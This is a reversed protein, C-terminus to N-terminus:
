PLIRRGLARSRGRFEAIVSGDATRVTVDYLGSRGQRVREAATATLEDGPKAPAVFTVDFGAAVTVDDYTNCAIAFASDALTAILGGHCIGHGNVMDDRVRMQVTALGPSVDGLRMGLARSALDGDWVTQASRRAVEEHNM